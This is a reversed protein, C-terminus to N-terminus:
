RAIRAVIAPLDAFDSFAADHPLDAVAAKRYGRTFLAFPVGARRATEADVDSDGVYVQPGSGLDSFAAHLPAPDPKRVPMSDGGWVTPFFADLGLHRLVTHTPLLPKNTCIGLCHGTAQLDNLTAFVGSYARTLGVAGDYRTMFEALLTNQQDDPIGRAHRLRQMFVATGSGIFEHTQAIDIPPEGIGLLVANAVAQIDPASDILTGDLDFVIRAM